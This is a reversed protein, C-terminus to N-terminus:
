DRPPCEGPRALPEEGRLRRGLDALIRQDTTITQHSAILTGPVWIPNVGPPASNTAGVWTDNLRAYCILEYDAREHEANLRGLLPSGPKMSRAAGDIAILKALKAG